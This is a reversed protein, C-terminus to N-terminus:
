NDEKDKCFNIRFKPKVGFTGGSKTDLHFLSREFCIGEACEDDKKCGEHYLKYKCTWKKDKGIV